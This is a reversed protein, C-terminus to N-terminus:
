IDLGLAEFEKRRSQFYDGHDLSMGLCWQEAHILEHLITGRLTAEDDIQYMNLLVLGTRKAPFFMGYWDTGADITRMVVPRSLAFLPKYANWWYRHRM